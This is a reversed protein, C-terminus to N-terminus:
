GSDAQEAVLFSGCFCWHEGLQSLYQCMTEPSTPHPAKAVIQDRSDLVVYHFTVKLIVIDRKENEFKRKHACM